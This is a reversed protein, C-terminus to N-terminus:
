CSVPVFCNDALGIQAALNLYTPVLDVDHEHLVQQWLNLLDPELFAFVQKLYEPNEKPWGRSCEELLKSAVSAWTKYSRQHRKLRQIAKNQYFEAFERFLPNDRSTLFENAIEQIQMRSESQILKVLVQEDGILAQFAEEKIERRVDFSRDMLRGLWNKQRERVRAVETLQFYNLEPHELLTRVIKKPDTNEPSNAAESPLNKPNIAFNPM